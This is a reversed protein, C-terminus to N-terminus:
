PQIRSLPKKTRLIGRAELIYRAVNENSVYRANEQCYTRIDEAVQEVLAQEDSIDILAVPIDRTFYPEDTVVFASIKRYGQACYMRRAKIKKPKM